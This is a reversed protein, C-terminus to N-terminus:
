RWPSKAPLRRRLSHWSRDPPLSWTQGRDARRRPWPLSFVLACRRRVIAAAYRVAGADRRACTLRTRDLSAAALDRQTNNPEATAATKDLEILPDGAYTGNGNSTISSANQKTVEALGSLLYCDGLYGQNIDSMTPGSAAFLPGASTTYSISFTSSGSMAVSSSSLDTGLFWKRILETLQTASAGTALNGPTVAKATGGTWNANAASGNVLADQDGVSM